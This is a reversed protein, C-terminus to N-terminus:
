EISDNCQVIDHVLNPPLKEKFVRNAQFKGLDGTEHV